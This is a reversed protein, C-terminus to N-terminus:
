AGEAGVKVVLNNVGISHAKEIAEPLEPRDMLLKLEEDGPLVYASKLMLPILISRATDISCLRLRLNPDFVITQNNKLAM